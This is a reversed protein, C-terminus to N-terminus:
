TTDRKSSNEGSSMSRTLCPTTCWWPLPAHDLKSLAAGLSGDTCSGVMADNLPAPDAPLPTDGRRDDPPATPPPCPQSTVSCVIADAGLLVLHNENLKRLIPLDSFIVRRQSTCVKTILIALMSSSNGKACNTGNARAGTMSPPTSPATQLDSACRPPRLLNINVTNILLRCTEGSTSM